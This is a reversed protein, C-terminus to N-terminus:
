GPPVSLYSFVFHDSTSIVFFFILCKKMSKLSILIRVRASSLLSLYYAFINNLKFFKNKVLM